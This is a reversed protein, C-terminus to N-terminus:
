NVQISSLFELEKLLYKLDSSPFNKTQLTNGHYDRGEMLYGYETLKDSSRLTLSSLDLAPHTNFTIEMALIRLPSTFYAIWYDNQPSPSGRFAFLVADCKTNKPFKTTGILKRLDEAQHVENTQFVSLLRSSCVSLNEITLAM